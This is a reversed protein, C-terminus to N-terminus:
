HALELYRPEHTTRYLEVLGMYHAPCIGHGALAADPAAFAKCLYDGAKRAVGLLNAKGTARHHVCAATMLHGMNYVEFDLPDGLAKLEGGNRESILVPTHLYGDARQAKAILEIAQDMRRDLEP